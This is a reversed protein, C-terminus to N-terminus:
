RLPTPNGRGPNPTNGLIRKKKKRAASPPVFSSFLNELPVGQVLGRPPQGKSGREPQHTNATALLHGTPPTSLNARAPVTPVRVPALGTGVVGTRTGVLVPLTYFIM